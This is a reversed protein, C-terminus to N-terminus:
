EQVETSRWSGHLGTGTRYGQVIVTGTLFEQLRIFSYGKQLVNRSRYGHVGTSSMNGHIGTRGTYWM